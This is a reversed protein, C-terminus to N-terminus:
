RNWFLVYDRLVILIGKRSLHKVESDPLGVRGCLTVFNGLHTDPTGGRGLKGADLAEAISKRLEKQVELDLLQDIKYIGLSDLIPRIKKVSAKRNGLLRISNHM